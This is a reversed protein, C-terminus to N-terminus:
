KQRSKRANRDNLMPEKDVIQETETELLDFRHGVGNLDERAGERGQNVADHRDKRKGPGEDSGKDPDLSLAVLHVSEQVERLIQNLNLLEDYATMGNQQKRELEENIVAEKSVEDMSSLVVGIFFNLTILAGTMIFSIFFIAAGVPSAAPQVCLDPRDLYGYQDCGYMNIYMLDTWDELTVARFLSVMAIQLNGFHLPDNGGYIFVALM